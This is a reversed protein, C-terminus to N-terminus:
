SSTSGPTRTVKLLESRILKLRDPSHSKLYIRVVSQEEMGLTRIIPSAQPWTETSLAAYVGDADRQLLAAGRDLDKTAKPPVKDVHLDNGQVRSLLDNKISEAAEATRKADVRDNRLVPDIDTIRKWLRRNQLDSVLAAVEQNPGNQLIRLFQHDDLDVYSEILQDLSDTSLVKVGTTDALTAIENLMMEIARNTKHYYVQVFLEFRAQVLNEVARLGSRKIGLRYETTDTRDRYCLFSKLLRGRDFLGYSVGLSRSDRELYDMRDADAPASAVIDHCLPVWARLQQDVVAHYLKPGLIAATVARPIEPFAGGKLDHWSATFFICSMVEHKVRAEPSFEKQDYSTLEDALDSIAALRVDTLLSRIEKSTPAFHDFTHSLPGHGLDHTLAALRIIEYLRKRFGADVSTLDIAQGPQARDVNQVRSPTKGGSVQSNSLLSHWMSDAVFLAGLSHEFRTHTASPFVLWLLGNQKAGRLRRFLPRDV